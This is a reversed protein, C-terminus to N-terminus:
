GLNGFTYRGVEMGGDDLFEGKGAPKGISKAGEKTDRLNLRRLGNYM